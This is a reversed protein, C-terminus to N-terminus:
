MMALYKNGVSSGYLQKYRVKKEIAQIVTEVHNVKQQQGILNLGVWDPETPPLTAALAAAGPPAPRSRPDDRM